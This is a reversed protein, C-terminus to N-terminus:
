ENYLGEVLEIYSACSWAQLPAGASELSAASSLESPCGLAGLTLIERTSAELTQRVCAPAYGLRKLALAAFNNLFFWSDGNHYSEPYEGTHVERFDPSSKDLTALGGWPLWLSALAKRFGKHWDRRPLLEPAAYAALFLNPRCVDDEAGDAIGWLRLFARRFGASAGSTKVKFNLSSILNALQANLAYLEVRQGPRGVSDMWTENPAHDRTQTQVSVHAMKEILTLEKKTFRQRKAAQSLTHYDLLRRFLWGPADASLYSDDQRAVLAGTKIIAEAYALLRQKVYKHCNLSLLAKLCILEDRSWVQFFWPLGAVVGEPTSLASLNQRCLNYAVSVEPAANLQALRQVSRQFDLREIQSLNHLIYRNQNIANEPTLGASFVFLSGALTGPSFVFRSYPPSGRNRDEPCEQEFWGAKPEVAPSIALYLTYEEQGESGDDDMASTRKCFRILTCDGYPISDYFRGFVRNDFSQKIDLNVRLNIQRDARVVLAPLSSPLFYELRTSGYAVEAKYGKHVIRTIPSGAQVDLSAILRFLQKDVRAFFGNYRSNQGGFKLYSLHPTALLLSASEVEASYAPVPEGLKYDVRIM